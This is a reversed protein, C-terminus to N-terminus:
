TRMRPQGIVNVRIHRPRPLTGNLIKKHRVSHTLFTGVRGDARLTLDGPQNEYAAQDLRIRKPADRAAMYPPLDWPAFLGRLMGPKVGLFATASTVIHRRSKKVDRGHPCCGM